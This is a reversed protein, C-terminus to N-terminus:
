QFWEGGGVCIECPVYGKEQIEEESIATLEPAIHRCDANHYKEGGETVVVRNGVPNCTGCRSYGLQLAESASIQRTEKDILYCDPLHYHTGNGIKYKVNGDSGSESEGASKVEATKGIFPRGVCQIVIPKMKAFRSVFPFEYQYTAVIRFLGERGDEEYFFDSFLYSIGLAGKELGWADLNQDKTLEHVLFRVIQQLAIDKALGKIGEGDTFSNIMGLLAEYRGTQEIIEKDTQDEDVAVLETSEESDGIYNSLYLVSELMQASEFVANRVCDYVYLSRLIYLFPLMIVIVFPVVLAAEVTLSGRINKKM